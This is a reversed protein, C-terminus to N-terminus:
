KVRNRIKNADRLWLYSFFFCAITGGIWMFNESSSFMNILSLVGVALTFLGLLLKPLATQNQRVQAKSRAAKEILAAAIDPKLGKEVLIKEVELKTHGEQLLDEVLEYIVRVTDQKSAQEAQTVIIEQIISSQILVANHVSMIHSQIMILAIRGKIISANFCDVWSAM